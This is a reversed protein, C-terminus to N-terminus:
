AGAEEQLESSPAEAQRANHPPRCIDWLFLTLSVHLPRDSWRMGRQSSSEGEKAQVEESRVGSGHGHDLRVTGQAWARDNHEATDVPESATRRRPFGKCRRRCKRAPTVTGTGTASATHRTTTVGDPLVLTARRRDHRTGKLMNGMVVLNELMDEQVDIDASEEDGRRADATLPM